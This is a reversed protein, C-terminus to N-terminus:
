LSLAPETKLVDASPRAAAQKQKSPEDSFHNVLIAILAVAIGGLLDVVYHWELLLIAPILIIDYAVLCLVVRKWRRMFWLVIIPLAVHLSPFAIFYDTNVKSLSKYPSSMLKANAIFTRQFDYTKLWHPFHAFHDPCTYFPGMSPWFYFIVLAMYYATLMTGVLQLGRKAGQWLSILIIAAGVQDFMRYYMTEAFAFTRPSLTSSAKRVLDSITGGHLLYSDARLFFWDYGSIDKVAAIVDNYAFVLLLGGFLYMAPPIVSGFPRVITRFKGESRDYVETSVLAVSLWLLGLYIGFKWFAWVVFPVFIVLRAKQAAFRSWVPRVTIKSPLGITAMIVAALLSHAAFGVWYLPILRQWSVSLHLGAAKFAPIVMLVLLCSLFYHGNHRLTRAVGGLQM